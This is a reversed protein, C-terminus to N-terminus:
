RSWVQAVIDVAKPTVLSHSNDLVLSYRGTKAAVFAFGQVGSVRVVDMTVQGSPDKVLFNVDLKSSDARSVARVTVTGEIRQGEQMELHIAQVLGGSVDVRSNVNAVVVPAPTPTPQGGCGTTLLALIMSATLALLAVTVGCRLVATSM